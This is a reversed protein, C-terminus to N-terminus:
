TSAAVARGRRIVFTVVFAGIAFLAAPVLWIVLGTGSAEPRAVANDGFEARVWDLIDDGSEGREVRDAIELRLERAQRTTCDILLRGPCYPSWVQSEIAQARETDSRPQAACAPALVVVLL